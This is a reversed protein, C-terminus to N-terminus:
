TESGASKIHASRKNKDEVEVLGYHTLQKETPMLPCLSVMEVFDWFAPNM